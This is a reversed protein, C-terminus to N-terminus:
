RECLVTEVDYTRPGETGRWEIRIRVPLVLYDASRDGADVVGDSNLDRPMGMVVDAVTERLVGAAGPVDVPFWILGARGDADGARPEIGPVAFNAGPAARSLGADNATSADYLAFVERFPAARLEEIMRQAAQQAVALERNSRNAGFASLMSAGLGAIAIVLITMAFMMEILTFGARASARRAPERGTKTMM